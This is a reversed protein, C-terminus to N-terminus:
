YVLLQVQAAFDAATIGFVQRFAQRGDGSQRAALLWEQLAGWGYRRVLEAAGYECLKAIDDHSYQAEIEQMAARKMMKDLPPLPAIKRLDQRWARQYDILRGYGSDCLRGVGAVYGIGRQLWEVGCDETGLEQVELMRTLMVGSVFICQRKDAIRQGNVILTSNNEVWVSGAALEKARQPAIRCFEEAVRAVDDQDAAVIIDYEGTLQRGWHRTLWTQTEAVQQKLQSVVDQSVGGHGQVHILTKQQEARWWDVFAALFGDLAVGFTNQLAAEAKEGQGLRQYYEVLKANEQGAAYTKLLYWTMLDSLGYTNVQTNMLQTREAETTRQVDMVNAVKRSNQVTFKADLFWKELSREGLEAAVQAGVYDASGEELWFLSKEYGNRGDSLQYQLQHFLEHATTSLRDDSEKLGDKDGNLVCLAKAGSAQGTTYQAKNRAEASEMEMKKVLLNEYGQRDAAVIIHVDRELKVQFNKECFAAFGKAAKEVDQRTAAPVAGSTEVTIQGTGQALGLADALMDRGAGGGLCGGALLVLGLLLLLKKM